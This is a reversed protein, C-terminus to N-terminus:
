GAYDLWNESECVPCKIMITNKTRDIEGESEDFRLKSRCRHCTTNRIRKFGERRELVEVM